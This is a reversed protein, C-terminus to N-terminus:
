RYGPNLAAAKALAEAAKSLFARRLKLPSPRFGPCVM